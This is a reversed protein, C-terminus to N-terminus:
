FLSLTTCSRGMAYHRDLEPSAPAKSPPLPPSTFCSRLTHELNGVTHYTRNSDLIRVVDDLVLYQVINEAPLRVHESTHASPTQM